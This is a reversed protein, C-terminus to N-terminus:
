FVRSGVKNNLVIGSNCVFVMDPLGDVPELTKVPVGAKEIAKKLDDWQRQAKPQDVVGGMWPNIAYEVKFYKPPVMLVSRMLQGIARSM